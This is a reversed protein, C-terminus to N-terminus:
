TEQLERIQSSPVSVESVVVPSLTSPRGGRQSIIVGLLVVSCAFLQMTNMAEGLLWYALFLTFVPILNTYASAITVPLQTIAWNYLVYAGLTVCAGLYLVAGLERLGFQLPMPEYWALPAFFLVGIFAQMATLFLPSYRSSLRKLIVSYCAACAMAGLELLNGLAPNPAGPQEDGTLTLAVVGALALLFGLLQVRRVREGLLAFAMVSVMLPLTATVMGAQGASTHNLANAELLFYLCPETLTMLVLWRWDGAQYRIHRWYKFLLVFCVSAVLMRACIVQGPGWVALLNKLAIFASSWLLMALTLAAVPLWAPRQKLM